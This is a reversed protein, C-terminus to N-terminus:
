LFEREKKELLDLLIVASLMDASGGASCNRQHCQYDFDVWFDIDKKLIIKSQEKLWKLGGEGMRKIVTTDDLRSMLFLLTRVMKENIDADVMRYFELADMLHPSFGSLALGRVGKNGSALYQMEGETLESKRHIDEFDRILSVALEQIKETLMGLTRSLQWGGIVMLLTFIAGKHTNIGNTSDFMKKEAVKGIARLADFYSTWDHFILENAKAIEGSIVMISDIFTDINMDKHIGSGFPTVLGFKPHASVEALLAFTIQYKLSSQVHDLIRSHIHSEIDEVPHTQNRSCQYAPRDCLYCSRISYGFDRRSLLDGKENLVDIDIIRGLSHNEEIDLMKRKLSLSEQPCVVFVICGEATHQRLVHVSPIISLVEQAIITVAYLSFPDYKHKGPMNAKIVILPLKWQKILKEQFKAREERSFLLDTSVTM